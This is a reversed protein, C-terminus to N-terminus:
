DKVLLFNVLNDAITTVPVTRVPNEPQLSVLDLFSNEQSNVDRLSFLLNIAAM